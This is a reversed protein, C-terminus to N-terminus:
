LEPNLKMDIRHNSQTSTRLAGVAKQHLLHQETQEVLQSTDPAM